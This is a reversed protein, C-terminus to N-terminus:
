RIGIKTDKKKPKFLIKLKYEFGQTPFTAPSQALNGFQNIFFFAPVGKINYLNYATRKNTREGNYLITWNYKPNAKLFKKYSNISDDTCINIFVVKDGYKKVLDATKPLEKLSSISKTSFFGLYIYRGKFDSLHWEKGLKDIAAFDPAQMGVNLNYAIQLVNDLIKQHERIKTSNRMQEIVGLVMEHNFKPNYYYEWLSRICVLEALTDNSSLLPDSKVFTIVDKYQGVTNILHHINENKKTSSFSETYGKFYANFFNMYEFHNHQVPKGAIYNAALFNKGRSASANLEAISYEVYSKFYSNNNKKYRWSSILKLTDLKNYIRNKNLFESSANQFIRNYIMNFDIIRTNLETTDASIVGIEVTEEVDGRIGSENDKGPFTIGYVYGPQVYIKGVLKDITIQVPQTFNTQLELEFYGNADVTDTSEKILTYTILDSFTNLYIEKGIHSEHAKGKIKINQAVSLIGMGTFVIFLIIRAPFHKM